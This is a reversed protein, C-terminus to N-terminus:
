PAAVYRLSIVDDGIREPQSALRGPHDAEDWLNMRMLSARQLQLEQPGSDGSVAVANCDTFSTQGYDAFAIYIPKAYKSDPQDPIMPREIVWEATRREVPRFSPDSADKRLDYYAAYAYNTTENKFFFSLTMSDVAHVQAYVRDSRDVTVPMPVQWINQRDNRLWLQWWAVHVDLRIPPIGLGQYTHALQGTGIQPLVSSAPDHGDLGVWVSSAYGPGGGYMPTDPVTWRGQVLAMQDLRRPRVFGGSWNHSSEQSVTRNARTLNSVDKGFVPARTPVAPFRPRSALARAWNAYAVPLQTRDPRPPLCYTRLQADTAGLPDFSQDPPNTEIGKLAGIQIRGPESVSPGPRSAKTADM